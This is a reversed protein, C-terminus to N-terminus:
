CNKVEIGYLHLVDQITAVFNDDVHLEQRVYRNKWASVSCNIEDCKEMSADSQMFIIQM